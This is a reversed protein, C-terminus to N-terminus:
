RLPMRSSWDSNKSFKFCTERMGATGAGGERLLLFTGRFFVLLGQCSYGLPPLERGDTMMMMRVVRVGDDRPFPRYTKYWRVSPDM